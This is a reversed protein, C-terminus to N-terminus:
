KVFVTNMLFYWYAFLLFNNKSLSLGKKVKKVSFSIYFRSPRKVRGSAKFLKFCIFFLLEGSISPNVTSNYFQKQLLKSTLRRRDKFYAYVICFNDTVWSRPMIVQIGFSPLFLSYRLFQRGIESKDTSKFIPEEAIASLLLDTNSLSIESDCDPNILPRCIPSQLLSTKYRSSFFFFFFFFFFFSLFYGQVEQTVLSQFLRRNKSTSSWQFFM